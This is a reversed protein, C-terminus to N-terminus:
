RFKLRSQVKEIKKYYANDMAVKLNSVNILANTRKLGM